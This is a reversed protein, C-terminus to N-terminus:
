ADLQHQLQQMISQTNVQKGTWFEFSCAAQEVLMGLGDGVMSANNQKAWRMFPTQQAYMLDYCVAGDACGTAITPM